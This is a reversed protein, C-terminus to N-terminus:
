DRRTSLVFEKCTERTFKILSIWQEKTCRSAVIDGRNEGSGMDPKGSGMSEGAGRGMGVEGIGSTAAVVGFLSFELGPVDKAM